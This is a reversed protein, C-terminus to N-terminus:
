INYSFTEPVDVCQLFGSALADVAGSLHVYRELRDSSRVNVLESACAVPLVM